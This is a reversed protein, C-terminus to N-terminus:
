PGAADLADIRRTVRPNRVFDLETKFLAYYRWPPIRADPNRRQYAARMTEMSRAGAPNHRAYLDYLTVPDPWRVIQGDRASKASPGEPHHRPFRPGGLSNPQLGVLSDTINGATGGGTIGVTVFGTVTRAPWLASLALLLDTGASGAVGSCSFFTIQGNPVVYDGLREMASRLRTGPRVTQATLDTGGVGIRGPRIGHAVIGLRWVRSRLGGGSVRGEALRELLDEPDSFAPALVIPYASSPRWAAEVSTHSAWVGHLRQVVLGPNQAPGRGQGPGSAGVGRDADSPRYGFV